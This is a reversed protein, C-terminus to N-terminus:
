LKNTPYLLDKLDYSYIEDSNNKTFMIKNIPDFAIKFFPNSLHLKKIFQGSWNYVDIENTQSLWNVDVSPLNLYSVFIFSDDVVIFRNYIRFSEPDKKLSKFGPKDKLRFCVNKGTKLDLINIQPLYVMAMALKSKDPKIKDFSTFFQEVVFSQDIFKNSIPKNYIVLSKVLKGTNSNYIGYKGPIYDTGNKFLVQAQNKALFYKEDLEFIFNYVFGPPEICKIPQRKNNFVTKQSQLSKTVNLENLTVSNIEIWLNIENSVNYFQGYCYVSRVENPGNGVQCFKGILSNTKLNFVHVKKDHAKNFNFILLSDNVYMSGDYISDLIIQQGRVTDIKQPENVLTIEGNFYSKEDDCSSFLITLLTVIHILSFNKLRM